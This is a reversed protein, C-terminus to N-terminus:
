VGAYQYHYRVEIAMYEAGTDATYGITNTGILLQIFSSDETLYENIETTTGGSTLYIHKNGRGTTVTIVDGASLTLPTTDNGLTIHQDNEINYVSPNTVSGTIQITITVGTGSIGSDNEITGTQSDNKYGFEEGDATFEHVFEFNSQWESIGVIYETASQFLPDPCLLSVTALRAFQEGSISLKEVVYDITKEDDNEVYTLTGVTDPRFLKYLTSRQAQHDDDHERLTLVINRMKVTTGYYTSGNLNTNASTAVNNNVEYLGDADELVFPSFTDGFTVTLGDNNTCIIYKDM